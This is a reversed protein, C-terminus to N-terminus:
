LTKNKQNDKRFRQLKRMRPKNCFKAKQKRGINLFHRVFISASKNETNLKVKPRKKSEFIM